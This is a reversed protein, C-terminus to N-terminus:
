HDAGATGAGGGVQGAQEPSRPIHPAILGSILNMGTIVPFGDQGADPYSIVTISAPDVAIRQFQDFPLGLADAIIAKVPDGHSVLLWTGAGVRANWDRVGDVVRAFMAAMSEGGPFSVQSPTTRIAHWCGEEALEKLPRGSWEGYDCESFRDDVVPTLTLGAARAVLDLTQECRLIPSRVLAALEVGALREGVSAAQTRGHEDLHVGPLRGALTGATNATSRGHRLLLLTAM